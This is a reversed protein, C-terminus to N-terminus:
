NQRMMAGKKASKAAGGAQEQPLSFAALFRDVVAVINKRYEEYKTADPYSVMLIWFGTVMAVLGSALIEADDPKLQRELIQRLRGRIVLEANSQVERLEPSHRLRAVLSYWASIVEPMLQDPKLYALLISKVQSAVSRKQDGERKANALIEEYLAEYTAILLQDKDGFYHAVVGATLGARNAIKQVSARELGDEHISTITARILQNRREDWTKHQGLGRGEM